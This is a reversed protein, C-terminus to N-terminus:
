LGAGTFWVAPAHGLALARALIMALALLALAAFVARGRRTAPAALLAGLLMLPAMNRAAAPLAGWVAGPWCLAAAGWVLAAIAIVREERRWAQAALAIVVPVTLALLAPGVTHALSEASRVPGTLAAFWDALPVAITETINWAIAWVGTQHHIVLLWALYPLPALLVTLAGRGPRTALLGVLVAVWLILASEKTLCALALAAAAMGWRRQDLAWLALAVLAVLLADPSLYQCALAAGASVVGILAWHPAHGRAALWRTMLATTMGVALLNLLALAAATLSPSGFSLLSALLPYLVRQRRHAPLHEHPALPALAMVFYFQGDYGETGQQIVTGEPLRPDAHLPVALADGFSALASLDGGHRMVQGAMALACIAMALASWGLTATWTPARHPSDVTNAPDSM